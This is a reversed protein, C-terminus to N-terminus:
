NKKLQKRAEDACLLIKNIAMKVQEIPLTEMELELAAIQLALGCRSLIKIPDTNASILDQSILDLESQSSM